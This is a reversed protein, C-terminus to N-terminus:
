IEYDIQDHAPTIKLVGTGFSRDVSEDAIIPISRNLIPVIAMRGIYKQYRKDDPHVALAVDAFITEPRTTAVDM